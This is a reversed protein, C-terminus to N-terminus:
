TKSHNRESQAKVEDDAVQVKKNFRRFFFFIHAAAYSFWCGAYAFVFVCILQATVVCGILSLSNESCPYYLLDLIGLKKGEGTVTCAPKHRFQDSVWITSKKM